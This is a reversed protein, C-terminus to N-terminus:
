LNNGPCIAEAFTLEETQGQAGPGPCPTKKSVSTSLRIDTSEKAAGIVFLDIFGM